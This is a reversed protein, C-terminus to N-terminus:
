TAGFAKRHASNTACNKQEEFEEFYMVQGEPLNFVSNVLGIVFDVLGLSNSVVKKACQTSGKRTFFTCHLIRSHSNKSLVCFFKLDFRTSTTM